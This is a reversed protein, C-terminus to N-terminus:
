KGYKSTSKRIVLEGQLFQMEPQITKDKNSDLLKMMLQAAMNGLQYKPQRFTTLSPNTYAAFEIDDFGVVSCDEPIRLGAQQFAHIVGVAMVDNFCVVAASIEDLNLFHQGGVIGGQIRGDPAHFVYDPPVHLNALKMEHNFGALRNRTTSPARENGLYAIKTHGLEVLYKAVQQSGSFDDHYVMYQYFEQKQNGVAVVSFDYNQLQRAHNEGFDTSCVILGDVRREGMAQLIGKEQDFDRDSAAVFLSYGASQSVDEIGQLIESFYPDDIRNVIVGLALSRKTKLGRAVASPVYGLEEAIKKIRTITEPSIASNGRLARSVTSHSVGAVKAIDKITVPM